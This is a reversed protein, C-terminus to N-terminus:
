KLHIFCDSQIPIAEHDESVEDGNIFVRVGRVGNFSCLTAVISQIMLTQEKEDKHELINSAFDVSVIGLDESVSGISTNKPLPSEYGNRPEFQILATLAAEFQTGDISPQLHMPYEFLKDQGSLCLYLGADVEGIGSRVPGIMAEDWEFEEALDLYSYRQGSYGEVFIQVRNVDDLQCLSDVISFICMREKLPNRPRNQIFESSLVVTCLGDYTTAKILRTGAPMTSSSEKKTPGDILASVIDEPIQDASEVNVSHSEAILYRNQSDSFYLNFLKNTQGISHDVLVLESPQLSITKQGDLLQNEAQISVVSYKDDYQWITRAICGAAVRLNVGSLGAFSDDLILTISNEKYETRVIDLNPPFPSVLDTDVPGKFYLELMSSLNNIGRLTRTESAMIGMDSFFADNENCYYFQAKKANEESACGTFLLCLILLICGIRKM